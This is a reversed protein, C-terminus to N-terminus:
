QVKKKIEKVSGNTVKFQKFNGNPKFKFSTGTFIGQAQEIADYLKKQRRADLESFVDDFVMIPSEGIEDTIIKMEALKLALVISRAQGQSAFARADIGNLEFKIDDRHPGITTYGLEMDRELNNELAAILESKIEDKTIGRVGVYGISLEENNDSLQTIYKKAYPVLKEIFSKRTKIIPAAVSALQENWIGITNIIKSIDKEFKLLRNRQALIKEYRNLLNYYAGSLMSIDDDIFDRRDSPGGTVIKLDQPSFYLVIANGFVESVRGVENSNIKYINDSEGNIIFDFSVRGFNRMVEATVRASNESHMVLDKDQHTRPSKARSILIVAESLNTKGQGNLGTILNLHPSFELSTLKHNRFNTLNVSTIFM